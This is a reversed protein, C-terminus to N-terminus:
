VEFESLFHEIGRQKALLRYDDAQNQVKRKQKMYSEVDDLLRMFQEAKLVYKHRSNDKEFIQLVSLTPPDTFLWYGVIHGIESYNEM